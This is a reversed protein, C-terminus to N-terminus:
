KHFAVDVNPPRYGLQFNGIALDPKGDGNLDTSIMVNTSAGSAFLSRTYQGNGNNFFIVVQQSLMLGAAIDPLGDGNFDGVAIDGIVQGADLLAGQYFTGDGYSYYIEIGTFNQGILAVDDYGDGNFDAVASTFGNGIPLLKNEDRITTFTRTGANLFTFTGTGIDLLGDGTFDGLAFPPDFSPNTAVATFQYASNGYLVQGQVVMDPHGDRDMDAVTPNSVQPISISSSSFDLSGNNPWILLDQGNYGLLDFVGRGTLDALAYSNPDTTAALQFANNGQNLFVTGPIGETRDGSLFLEPLGDGNIDGASLGTVTEPTLSLPSPYNRDTRGLAVSVFNFQDPVVLDPIGDGNIDGAAAFYGHPGVVEQLTFNGRGDGWLYVMHSPETEGDVGAMDPFGDHDFDGAVLNFPEYAQPPFLTQSAVQTFSGDGNGSYSTVLVSNNQGVQIVLDPIGDLNFDIVNAVGLTIGNLGPTVEDTFTGAGQNLLTHFAKVDTSSDYFSYLIDPKGDGNFDAVSFASASTEQALTVPAAFNGGGINKLWLLSTYLGNPQEISLVLDPKGDGDLDALQAPGPYLGPFTQPSSAPQFNGHGGGLSVSVTITGTGAGNNNTCAVLDMTGNGDVDGVALTWPSLGAITQGAVLSGDSQGYMIVTNGPAGPMIIDALGDGNIDALAFYTPDNEEAVFYSPIAQMVFPGQQPWYATFPLANSTNSGDIVTLQHSGIVSAVSFTFEAKLATSNLLTTSSAPQGDVFVQSQQTFNQGFLFFLFDTAPTPGSEM